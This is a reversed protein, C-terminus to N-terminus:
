EDQGNSNRERQRLRKVYDGDFLEDPDRNLVCSGLIAVTSDTLSFTSPHLQAHNEGEDRLRSFLAKFFDADSSRPGTTAAATTPDAPGIEAAEADDAIVQVVESLSPWHKIDYRNKLQALPKQVWVTFRGNHIAADEIVQCIDTHTESCFGSHANLETREDLLQALEDAVESIKRNVDRLQARDCRSKAVKATNWEASVCLLGDFVLWLADYDGKLKRHLEEYAPALELRRSLMVGIMENHDPSIGGDLNRAKIDHLVTECATTTDIKDM